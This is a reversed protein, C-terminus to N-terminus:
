PDYPAYEGIYGGDVKALRLFSWYIWLLHTAEVRGLGLIYRTGMSRDPTGNIAAVAIGATTRAQSFKKHHAMGKTMSPPNKRNKKRSGRRRGGPVFPATSAGASPRTKTAPSTTEVSGGFPDQHCTLMKKDGTSTCM